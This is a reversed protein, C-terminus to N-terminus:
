ANEGGIEPNRGAGRRQQASCGSARPLQTLINVDKKVGAKVDSVAERLNGQCLDGLVAAGTSLHNGIVEMGTRLPNALLQM